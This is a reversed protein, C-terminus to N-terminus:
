GNAYAPRAETVCFEVRFDGSGEADGTGYSASGERVQDSGVIRDEIGLAVARYYQVEWVGRERRWVGGAQRLRRGLEVEGWRIRVSVLRDPSPRRPQWPVEDVIVEVTKIRRRRARVCVLRDGYEALLKKTGRGGPRLTLGVRM